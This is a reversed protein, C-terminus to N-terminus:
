REQPIVDVVMVDPPNNFRPIKDLESSLGSTVVIDFCEYEHIGKVCKPFYGQEPAWLPGLMPLVIQGGHAHGSVVLDINWTSPSEGLIFSEPRHALMIKYIGTDQFDTLFEYVESDMNEPITSNYSDIAFAFDYLGGIRLEQGKVEIDVYEKDLVVAGSDELQQILEPHNKMYGREHNGLAYYIPMHEAISEIFGCLEICNESSDNIMDGDLFLLDPECELVVQKLLDNKEGFHYSHQDSLTVFRIPNTVKNSELLYNSKKLCCYSIHIRYVCEVILIIFVFVIIISKKKRFM